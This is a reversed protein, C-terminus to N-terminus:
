RQHSTVDQDAPHTRVGDQPQAPSLRSGRTSYVAGFFLFVAPNMEIDLDHSEITAKSGRRWFRTPPHTWSAWIM